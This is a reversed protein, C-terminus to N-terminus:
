STASARQSRRYQSCISVTAFNTREPGSYCLLREGFDDKHKHCLRQVINGGNKFHEDADLSANTRLNAESHKALM